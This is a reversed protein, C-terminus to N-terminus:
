NANCTGVVVGVKSDRQLSLPNRLEVLSRVIVRAEVEFLELGGCYHEGGLGFEVAILGLDLELHEDIPARSVGGACASKRARACRWDGM